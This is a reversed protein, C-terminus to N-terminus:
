YSLYCYTHLCNSASTAELCLFDSPMVCDNCYTEDRRRIVCCTSSVHNMNKPFLGATTEKQRKKKDRGKGGSKGEKFQVTM